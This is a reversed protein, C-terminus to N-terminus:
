RPARDAGVRASTVLGSFAAGHRALWAAPDPQEHLRTIDFERALAQELAPLLRGHQLVREM